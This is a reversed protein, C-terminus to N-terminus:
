SAGPAALWTDDYAPHVLATLVHDRWAGDIFLYDRALGERVFGLRGLLRGSRENEPRFNAMIRHMRLADFMFANTERLAEAMLGQGEHTRGVQYGLDCAHFAGRVINTYNCTGIVPGDLPADRPQMVFRVARDAHFEEVSVALRDAWFAETFFGPAPPPSWRDLHGPFNDALFRAMAGEMGPRALRLVLRPSELEPLLAVARARAM